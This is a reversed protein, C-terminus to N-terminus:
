YKTLSLNRSKMMLPEAVQVPEAMMSNIFFRISATLFLHAELLRSIHGRGSFLDSKIQM